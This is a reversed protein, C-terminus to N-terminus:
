NRRGSPKVREELACSGKNILTNYLVECKIVSGIKMFKRDSGWFIMRTLWCGKHRRGTCVVLKIKQVMETGSGCWSDGYQKHQFKPRHTRCITGTAYQWSQNDQHSFEAKNILLALDKAWYLNFSCTLWKSDWTMPALLHFLKLPYKRLEETMKVNFACGWFGPLYSNVTWNASFDHSRARPSSKKKRDTHICPTSFQVARLVQCM